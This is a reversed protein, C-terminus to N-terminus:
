KSNSNVTANKIKRKARWRMFSGLGVLGPTAIVCLPCTAGTILATATGLVGIGAGLAICANAESVEKVSPNKPGDQNNIINRM